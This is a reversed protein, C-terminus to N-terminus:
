PRAYPALPPETPTIGPEPPPNGDLLEELGIPALQVPDAGEFVTDLCDTATFFRAPVPGGAHILADMVVEHAVADALLGLHEVPRGPCLSQVAVNTGGAVRATASPPPWAPQVLEDVLTYISTYSVAGPTEDGDNLARLFKSGTQMQLCSGTCGLAGVVDAINTGHNPTGLMVLDDVKAQVDPWWKVAWRLELGGQSHGVVDVRRGTARRIERVAHVVYEASVQIDGLTRNPMTVACTDFGRAPLVRLYNWGFSEEPTLGTGHVLLVPEHVDAGDGWTCSLAADLVARPTRLPPGSAGLVPGAPALLAALVVAAISAVSLRVVSNVGGDYGPRGGTM